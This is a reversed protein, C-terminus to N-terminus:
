ITAELLKLCFKLANAFEVLSPLWELSSGDQFFGVKQIPAWVTYIDSVGRHKLIIIHIKSASARPCKAGEPRTHRFDM